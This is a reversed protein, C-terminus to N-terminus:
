THINANSRSTDVSYKVTADFLLPVISLVAAYVCTTLSKGRIVICINPEHGTGADNAAQKKKELLLRCVLHLRSQLESTHEESRTPYMQLMRKSRDIFRRPWCRPAPRDQQRRCSQPSRPTKKCSATKPWNRQQSCERM